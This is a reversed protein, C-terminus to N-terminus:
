QSPRGVALYHDTGFDDTSAYINGFDGSCAGWYVGEPVSRLMGNTAIHMAGEHEDDEIATSFMVDVGEDLWHFAAYRLADWFGMGSLLYRDDPGSDCLVDVIYTEM